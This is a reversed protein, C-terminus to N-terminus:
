LKELEEFRWFITDEGDLIYKFGEGFDKIGTIIAEVNFEKVIVRDGPLLNKAFYIFQQYTYLNSIFLEYLNGNEEDLFYQCYNNNAIKSKLLYGENSITYAYNDEILLEDMNINLKVGSNMFLSKIQLEYKNQGFIGFGCKPINFNIVSSNSSNAEMTEKM